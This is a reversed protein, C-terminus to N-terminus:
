IFSKLKYLLFFANCSIDLIRYQNHATILWPLVVIKWFWSNLFLNNKTICNSKKKQLYVFASLPFTFWSALWCTQQFIYMLNYTCISRALLWDILLKTYLFKIITKSDRVRYEAQLNSSLLSSWTPQGREVVGLMIGFDHIINCM